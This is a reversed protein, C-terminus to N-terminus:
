KLPDAPQEIRAHARTKKVRKVRIVEEQAKRQIMKESVCKLSM